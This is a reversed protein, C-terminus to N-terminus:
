FRYNRRVPVTGHLNLVGDGLLKTLTDCQRKAHWSEWSLRTANLDVRRLKSFKPTGWKPTM